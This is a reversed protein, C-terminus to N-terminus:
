CNTNKPKVAMWRVILDERPFMDVYGNNRMIEQTQIEHVTQKVGAYPVRVLLDRLQDPLKKVANGEVDFVYLIGGPVLIRLAEEMVKVAVHNKLDEALFSLSVTQYSSSQSPLTQPGVVTPEPLEKGTRSCVSSTPSLKPLSSKKPVWSKTIGMPMSSRRELPTRPPSTEPSLPQTSPSFMSMRRSLSM